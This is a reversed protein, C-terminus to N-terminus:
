KSARQRLAQLEIELGDIYSKHCLPLLVSKGGHVKTKGDSDNWWQEM